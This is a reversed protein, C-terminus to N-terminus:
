VEVGTPAVVTVHSSQAVVPLRASVPADAGFGFGPLRAVAPELRSISRDFIAISALWISAQRPM